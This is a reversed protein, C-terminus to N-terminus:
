DALFETLANCVMGPSHVSTAFRRGARARRELEAPDRVLERVVRGLSSPTAEVVPLREGSVEELMERTSDWVHSVAVRGSLMAEVSAVGYQGSRIGDIVIDSQAVLGPMECPAVGSVETYRILGEKELPLLERRVDETGKWFGLSPVHLVTPPSSPAWRDAQWVGADALTPLWTAEPRYRLLYPNSVFEPVGTEETLAANARATAEAKEVWEEPADRYPSFPEVLVHDSPLRIDTGHWILGVKLGMDQLRRVHDATLNEGNSGLVPRGAEILIHTFERLERLQRREWLHSARWVNRRVRADAPFHSWGGPDYLQMSRAEVGRLGEAASAWAAAQGAYNTPGILLRTESFPARAVQRLDRHRWTAPGQVIRAQVKEPLFPLSWAAAENRIDKWSM